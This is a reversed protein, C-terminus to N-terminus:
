RLNDLDTVGEEQTRTGSFLQRWISKAEELLAAQSLVHPSHTSPFGPTTASDSLHPQADRAEDAESALTALDRQTSMM